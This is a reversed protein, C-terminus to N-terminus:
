EIIIVSISYVGAEVQTVINNLDDQTIVNGNWLIAKTLTYNALEGQGLFYQNFLDEGLIQKLAIRVPDVQAATSPSSTAGGGAAPDIITFAFIDSYMEEPESTTPCVKKVAWVYTTNAELARAGTTPYQFTTNQGVPYYGGDDPFPLSAEDALAEEPSTHQAPDFKAVRIYYECGVSEWQFLPYRTYIEMGESIDGGPGVLDLTTPNSVELYEEREDSLGPIPSDQEDVAWVRIRFVYVGSILKGTQLIVDQLKKGLEEMVETEAMSFDVVNGNIDKLEEVNLDMDMNSIVIDNLPEFPRTRGYFLRQDTIELSPVNAIMEFEAVIRMPWSGTLRYKFLLPNQSADYFNFDAVYFLQVLTFPQPVVEDVIRLEQAESLPATLPSILLVSIIAFKLLSKM